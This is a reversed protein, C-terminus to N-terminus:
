VYNTTENAIYIISCVHTFLYNQYCTKKKTIYATYYASELIPLNWYKEADYKKRM